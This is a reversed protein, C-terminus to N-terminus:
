IVLFWRSTLGKRCSSRSREIDELYDVKVQRMVKTLRIGSKLAEEENVKEDVNHILKFDINSESGRAAITKHNRGNSSFLPSVIFSDAAHFSNAVFALVLPNRMSVMTNYSTDLMHRTHASPM